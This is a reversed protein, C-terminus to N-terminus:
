KDVCCAYLISVQSSGKCVPGFAAHHADLCNSNITAHHTIHNLTIGCEFGCVWLVGASLYVDGVWMWVHACVWAYMCVYMIWCPYSTPNPNLDPDPDPDPDLDPDPNPNPNPSVCDSNITPSAHYTHTHTHIRYGCVWACTSVHMMHMVGYWCWSVNACDSAGWFGM